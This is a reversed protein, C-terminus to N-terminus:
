LEIGYSSLLEQIRDMDKEYTLKVLLANQEREIRKLGEDNEFIRWNPSEKIINRAFPKIHLDNQYYYGSTFVGDVKKNKANIDPELMRYLRDFAVIFEKYEPTNEIWEVADEYERRNSELKTKRYEALKNDFATKVINKLETTVKM